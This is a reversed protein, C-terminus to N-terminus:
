IPKPGATHNSTEMVVIAVQCRFLLNRPRSRVVTDDVPCHLSRTSFSQPATDIGFSLM